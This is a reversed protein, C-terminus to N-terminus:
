RTTPRQRRPRAQVLDQTPLGVQGRGDPGPRDLAQEDQGRPAAVAVADVGQRLPRDLLLRLSWGVLVAPIVFAAFGLSQRLLDALVAGDGGLFNHPALTIATDPSPDQPDYSFLAAALLLAALLLGFGLTECLRRKLAAWVETWGNRRRSRAAAGLGISRAMSGGIGARGWVLAAGCSVM